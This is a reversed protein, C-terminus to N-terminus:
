INVERKLLNKIPLFLPSPLKDWAFWQMETCKDKEKIIPIGEYDKVLMFITIYHKGEDKFMDDTIAVFSMRNAIIGTEEMVERKVCEEISENFELHGGPFAWTGEGHSGKRKLFLVKGKHKVIAAVGVKPIKEM